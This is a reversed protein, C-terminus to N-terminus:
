GQDGPLDKSRGDLESLISGLGISGSHEVQQRDGYKKPALKSMLWKRTDVRLRSRQIHEGNVAEISEGDGSKRQMWDNTADDAIELIEDAMRDMQVEKARAYQDSFSKNEALWKFVTSRAPMGDQSCIETVTLGDAVAECIAACIKESYTSPRGTSM